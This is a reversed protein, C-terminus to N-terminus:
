SLGQMSDKVHKLDLLMFRTELPKDVGIECFEREETESAFVLKFNNRAYFDLVGPANVADAVLYRGSVTQAYTVLWAKLLDMLEDGLRYHAFRDSIGLQALLVAPYTDRQKAWPVNRNLKNRMPKPMEDTSVSSAAVCFGCVMEGSEMDFFGYSQGMMEKAYPKAEVRFFEEIKPARSCSFRALVDESVNALVRFVCHNRLYGM